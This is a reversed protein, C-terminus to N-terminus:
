EYGTTEEAAAGVWSRVEVAGVVMDDCAVRWLKLGTVLQSGSSKVPGTLAGTDTCEGLEALM